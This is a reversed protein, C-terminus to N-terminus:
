DEPKHADHCGKCSKGIKAATERVSKLDEKKAATELEKSADALAKTLKDWSAKEGRPADNKGLAPGYKTFTEAAKKVKAWDPKEGKLEAKLIGSASTKGAFLKKMVVESTVSEDAAGAQRSVLGGAVVLALMSVGCILSKM